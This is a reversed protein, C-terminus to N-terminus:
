IDMGMNEVVITEDLIHAKVWWCNSYECDFMTTSGVGFREWPSPRLQRPERSESSKPILVTIGNRRWEPTVGVLLSYNFRCALSEASPNWLDAQAELGIRSSRGKPEKPM